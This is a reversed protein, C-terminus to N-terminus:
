RERQVAFDQATTERVLVQIRAPERLQPTWPLPVNDASIDILHEGAAVFPFEYRGQADTRTSYRRDLIITVGPVGGESAERKGNSDADYFVTGSVGGAGGGVSGGLPQTSSGARGEYRLILQLSRTPPTVLQAPLLASSLASTLLTTVPEQGRSETYRLSLFWDRQIKWTAALNANVSSSKDSRKAGRVSADLTLGVAPSLTGLFGWIWGTVPLTLGGSIRELALSSSFVSPPTLNWSQDAGLRVTKIGALQTMESRWQTQGWASTREWSLILSQAPASLARLSVTAGVSNRSDLRYRGFTSFYASGARRDSVADSIETTAGLQWQRTSTEAQWYAGQLDSALIATGWRLNPDFRFLGATHRWRDTRWTADTWLGNASGEFSNTSHLLNGQIRLGGRRDTVPTTGPTLGDSWPAAGEWATSTWFSRTTQTTGAAPDLVQNRVEMLQFGADLRSGTVVDRALRMQGGASSLSGGTQNFGSLDIGSFVGVKGASANLDISNGLSWQGNAGRIPASPLIVRSLGRSLPVGVTNVDGLGHNALWGGELPLARQDIRLSSRANDLVVAGPVEDSARVLNGSASFTGYNPTEVFGSFGLAQTRSRSFGRQVTNSSEVRWGRPWGGEDYTTAKLQLAEDPGPPLELVRDIYGDKNEPPPQLQLQARPPATAPRIAPPVTAAGQATVTAITRQAPEPGSQLPQSYSAPTQLVLGLGALSLKLGRAPGWSTISKLGRKM